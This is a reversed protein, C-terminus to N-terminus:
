LIELLKVEITLNIEDIHLLNLKVQTGQILKQGPLRIILPLNLLQFIENKIVTAYILKIKNQLLWRLCWYREMKKQFYSYNSNLKDFSLIIDFLDTDGPQFPAKISSINQYKICALIQWQNVLDVYRRLPSTSWTYQNVGLEQHPAPHTIMRVQTKSTYECGGQARYIGPINHNSILKGWNSNAFIMLESIIKNISTDRKYSTITVINNKVSFNFDIKDNKKSKLGFSKRKIMRKKELSKAWKWLIAIDNKHPYEGEGSNLIEETILSNLYNNRLNSVISIMEVRTKTSVLSWDIPNLISYLSLAARTKGENLSFKDIINSPLMTIKNGPTYISSMRERIFNDILDNRKICLGPASIHIGIQIKGCSLKVVSLADDIETTSADDISFARINNAVPLKPLNPIILNPFKIGKPFFHFLFKKYHLQEISKIRGCDIILREPSVKLAKSAINLAKYEISNKDPKFLLQLALNQIKDPIEKNKLKSIYENQLKIQSKKKELNIKTTKLLKGPVAKYRGKGKKYFYIPSNHLCFLLSAAEYSLPTHGFYEIGLDFFYFEKTGVIEWLFNLDIENALLKAQKILQDPNPTSFRLLIDSNKVKIHRGSIIKVQYFNGNQSFITGVKFASYKEFLLNM